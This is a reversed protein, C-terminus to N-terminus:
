FVLSWLVFANVCPPGVFAYKFVKLGYDINQKGWFVCCVYGINQNGLGCVSSCAGFLKNV